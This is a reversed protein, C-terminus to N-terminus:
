IALPFHRHGFKKAPPSDPLPIVRDPHIAVLYGNASWLSCLALVEASTEAKLTDFPKVSGSAKQHLEIRYSM